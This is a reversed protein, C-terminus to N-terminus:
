GKGGFMPAIMGLAAMPNSSRTQSMQTGYNGAAGAAAGQLMGLRTWAENDEGVWRAVYDSLERQAQEDFGSGAEIQAGAGALRNQYNRQDINSMEGAAALSQDIGQGYMNGANSLLNGRLSQANLSRDANGTEIGSIGGAAGLQSALAAQRAADIMGTAQLQNQQDQNFQNYLASSRINGLKNTLVGTNAGSGYRGAGSFQSQVQAATDDLQGQLMAEFHPNGNRVYEGSAYDGLYQDAATQGQARDLIGRFDASSVDRSQIRKALNKLDNIFPNNGAKGLLDNFIDRTGSTDWAQGAANLANLGAARMGGMPAVTSGEYTNGGLGSNYLNMAESASTKFLPAAWEPPKNETTTKSSAGM